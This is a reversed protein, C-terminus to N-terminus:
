FYFDEETAPMGNDIITIGVSNDEEEEQEPRSLSFERNIKKAALRKGDFYPTSIFYVAWLLSTVLDDHDEPSSANYVGPTKEEYVSLQYVTRRHNLKLMRNEVYKKLLMCGEIKNKRTARIGIGKKDCNVINESEHDYWICNAVVTGVNNNELMLMGDNYYESMTICVKAFSFPDILNSHYVAVQELDIENRIRIVNVVSEDNGTGEASDVGLIYFAGPVPEAFIELLGEYKTIVPEIPDLAELVESDILTNSSGIFKCDFEQNFAIQGVDEVVRKKFNPDQKYTPVDQWRIKVPYFSNKDKKANDWMTYFHNLGQPTSIIVVKSSQGSIITPYVSRMFEDAVNNPVFAFEDLYLINYTQGRVASSGTAAAIIRTGNSLQITKANWGGDKIGVQMWHPLNEYVMKVRRLIDLATSEKNALIAINQDKNFIAHFILYIASITTNHSLISNTYYTHNTSNVSLDYMNEFRDTEEVMNVSLLGVKTRILQGVQLDKIFVENYFEDILIHNDAGELEFPGVQIKWVKYEITKNSHSIDEWGTDTEVEWEDVEFTEIFKKDM